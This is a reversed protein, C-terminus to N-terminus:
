KALRLGCRYGLLRILDCERTSSVARASDSTLQPAGSNAVILLDVVIQFTATTLGDSAEIRSDMADLDLTVADNADLGQTLSLLGILASDNVGCALEQDGSQSVAM